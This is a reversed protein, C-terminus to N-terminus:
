MMRMSLTSMIWISGGIFIFILLATFLLVYLSWRNKKQLDLHLFFRLHVIIQVFASISLGIFITKASFSEAYVLYFSFVSLLIALVLGVIYARLENNNTTHNVKM